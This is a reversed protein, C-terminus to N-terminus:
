TLFNYAVIYFIRVFGAEYAQRATHSLILVVNGQGQLLRSLDQPNAHPRQTVGGGSIQVNLNYRFAMSDRLEQELIATSNDTIKIEM